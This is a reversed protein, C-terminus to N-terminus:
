DKKSEAATGFEWQRLKEGKGQGLNSLQCFAAPNKALTRKKQLKSTHGEL